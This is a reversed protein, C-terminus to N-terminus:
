TNDPIIRWKNADVFVDQVMGDQVLILHLIITEAPAAAPGFPTTTGNYRVNVGSSPHVEATESFGTDVLTAKLDSFTVTESFLRPPAPVGPDVPQTEGTYSFFLTRVTDSYFTAKVVTGANLFGCALRAEVLRADRQWQQAQETASAVGQDWDDQVDDLRGIVLRGDRCPGDETAILPQDASVAEAPETGADAGSGASSASCGALVMMVLLYLAM